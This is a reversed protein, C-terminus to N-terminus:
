QPPTVSDSRHRRHRSPDAHARPALHHRCHRLAVARGLPPLLPADKILQARHRAPVALMRHACKSLSLCDCRGPCRALAPACVARRDLICQRRQPLRGIAHAALPELNHDRINQRCKLSGAPQLEVVGLTVANEGYGDALPRRTRPPIITKTPMPALVTTQVLALSPAIVWISTSDLGSRRRRQLVSCFRDITASANAGPAETQSIARRASTTGFRI